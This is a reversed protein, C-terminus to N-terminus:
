VGYKRKFEKWEADTREYGFYCHGYIKPTDERNCAHALCNPRHFCVKLEVDKTIDMGMEFLAKDIEEDPLSPIAFVSDHESGEVYQQTARKLTSHEEVVWGYLDLYSIAKPEDFEKFAM